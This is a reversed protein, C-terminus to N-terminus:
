AADALPTNLVVTARGQAVCDGNGDAVSFGYLLQRTDGALREAEIRLPGDIDDLRWRALRVGRASALFGPVPGIASDAASVAEGQAAEARLAGHLAMAQAAYEIACSALLGHATRSPHDVDAHNVAECVIREDSWALLRHLWCMRGQHPVRAAIGRHDLTVPATSM